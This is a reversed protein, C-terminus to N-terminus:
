PPPHERRLAEAIRGCFRAVNRSVEESSLPLHRLERWDFWRREAILRVRPDCAEFDPAELEPVDVYLLPFVLDYRGLAAERGLFRRYEEGCQDSVLASPTVLPIFFESEGIASRVQEHRQPGAPFAAELQWLRFECGFRLELEHHIRKRLGALAGDSLRDDRPAYSFFGIRADRGDGGDGGPRAESRDPQRGPADAGPRANARDDDEARHRRDRAAAGPAGGSAPGLMAKVALVLRPLHRELPPAAADIRQSPCSALYYALKGSPSVVELRVIVIRFGHYVAHGVEAEVASSENARRSLLLIVIPKRVPRLARGGIACGIGEQALAACIAEAAARDGNSCCVFVDVGM